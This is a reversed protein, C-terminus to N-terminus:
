QADNTLELIIGDGDPGSTATKGYATIEYSTAPVGVVYACIGSAFGLADAWAAGGFPNAMNGLGNMHVAIAAPYIGNAVVAQDEAYLQGAHANGKVSSERARDQMSVYNPIAIAALIGIIVVVIMLEILTFGQNKKLM